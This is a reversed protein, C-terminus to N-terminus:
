EEDGMEPMEAESEGMEEENDNVIEIPTLGIKSGVSAVKAKLMVEQGKKYEMGACMSKPVFITDGSESAAAPNDQVPGRPKLMAKQYPNM